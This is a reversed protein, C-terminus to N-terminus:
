RLIPPHHPLTYLLGQLHCYCILIKSAVLPPPSPPCAAQQAITEIKSSPSDTGLMRNQKLGIMGIIQIYYLAIDSM